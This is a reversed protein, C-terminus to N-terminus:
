KAEWYALRDKYIKAGIEEAVQLTGPWQENADDFLIRKAGLNKFMNFIKMVDSYHRHPGDAFVFDIPKNRAKLFDRVGSLNPVIIYDIKDKVGLLDWLPEAIPQHNIDFTIVKNCISAWVAASLGKYTGLEIVTDVHLDLEELFNKFNDNKELVSSRFVKSHIEEYGIM